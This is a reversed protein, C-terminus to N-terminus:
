REPTTSTTTTPGASTSRATTTATTTTPGASTSTTTGTGPGSSTSAPATSTPATTPTTTDEARGCRDTRGRTQTAQCFERTIAGSREPALQLAHDFSREAAAENGTRSYGVIQARYILTGMELQVSSPVADIACEGEQLEQLGPEIRMRNVDAVGEVANAICTTTEIAQKRARRVADADAGPAPPPLPASNVEERARQAAAAAADFDGKKLDRNAERLLVQAPDPLRSGGSLPVISGIPVVISASEDDTGCKAALLTVAAVPGILGAALRKQLADRRQVSTPGWIV